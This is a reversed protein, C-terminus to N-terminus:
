NRPILQFSDLFRVTGEYPLRAPATVWTQYLTTGVLYIRVSFRQGMDNESEFELGRYIGLSIKRERLLRGRSALYESKARQLVTDQDWDSAASHYDNATVYLWAQADQAYYSHIEISGTETVSANKTLRPETPFFISFGDFPSKYANLQAAEIAPQDSPPQVTAYSAAPRYDATPQVIPRPLTSQSNSPHLFGRISYTESTGRWFLKVTDRRFEAEVISNAEPSRCDRYVTPAHSDNALVADTAMMVSSFINVKTICQVIVISSDSRKLQLASGEIEQTGSAPASFVGSCSNGYCSVSMRGNMYWDHLTTSSERAVVTVTERPAKNASASSCCLAAMITLFIGIKKMGQESEIWCATSVRDV